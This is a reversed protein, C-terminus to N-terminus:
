DGLELLLERRLRDDEALAKRMKALAVMEIQRIRARTVGLRKAVEERSMAPALPDFLGPPTSVDIARNPRPKQRKKKSKSM